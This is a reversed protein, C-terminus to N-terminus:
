RRADWIRMGANPGYAVLRDTGGSWGAPVARFLFVTGYGPVSQLSRDTADALLRVAAADEASLHQANLVLLSSDATM